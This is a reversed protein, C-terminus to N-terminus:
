LKGARFAVVVLGGDDEDFNWLTRGLRGKWWVWGDEEVWRM